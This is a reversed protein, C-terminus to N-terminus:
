HFGAPWYCSREDRVSRPAAGGKTSALERDGRDAGHAPAQADRRSYHFLRRRFSPDIWLWQQTQQHVRLLTWNLRIPTASAGTLAIPQKGLTRALRLEPETL